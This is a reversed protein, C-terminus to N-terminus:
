ENAKLKDSKLNYQFRGEHTRMNLISNESDAFGIETPSSSGNSPTYIVFYKRSSKNFGYVSGTNDSFVIYDANEIKKNKNEMKFIPTDYSQARMTVEQGNKASSIKESNDHAWRAAANSPGELSKEEEEQELAEEEAQKEEETPFYIYKVSQAEQQLFRMAVNNVSQLPKGYVYQRGDERVKIVGDYDLTTLKHGEIDYLCLSVRGTSGVQVGQPMNVYAFYLCDKGDVKVARPTQETSAMLKNNDFSISRGNVYQTHLPELIWASGNQTLKYIKYFSRSSPNSLYTVGLVSAPKEDHAPIALAFATQAGDGMYNSRGMEANFLALPDQGNLTLSTSDTLIAEQVARDTNSNCTRLILLIVILGVIIGVGAIVNRNYTSKPFQEEEQEEGYYNNDAAPSSQQQNKNWPDSAQQMRAARMEKEKRLRAQQQNFTEGEAMDNRVMKGCVPCFVSNAPILSNCSPCEIENSLRTGCQNCFASGDPVNNGCNPCKM